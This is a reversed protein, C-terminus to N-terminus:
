IQPVSLNPETEFIGDLRINLKCGPLIKATTPELPLPLTIHVHGYVRNIVSKSYQRRNPIESTRDEIQLLSWQRYKM